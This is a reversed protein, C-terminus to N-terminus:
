FRQLCQKIYVLWRKLMLTQQFTNLSKFYHAKAKNIIYQNRTVIITSKIEKKHTSVFYRIKTQRGKVMSWTSVKVIALNSGVLRWDKDGYRLKSISLFELNM